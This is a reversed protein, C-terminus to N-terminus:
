FAFTLGIIPGHYTVDINLPVGNATKYNQGLARYGLSITSPTKGWAVDWSYLGVAQWSFDSGVGFGGVDAGLIIRSRPGVETILRGGVIPDTFSVDKTASTGNGTTLRVNLNTHRVGAYTDIVTRNSESGFPGFRYAVAAGVLAMKIETNTSLVANKGGELNSYMLNGLVGWRGNWYEGEAMLAFNLKDFIDSFSIDVETSIPGVGADGEISLGWLYPTISARTGDTETFGQAHTSTSFVVATVIALLGSISKNM